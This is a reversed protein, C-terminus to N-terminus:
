CRLLLCRGQLSVQGASQRQFGSARSDSSHGQSDPLILAAGVRERRAQRQLSSAECLTAESFEIEVRVEAPDNEACCEVGPLHWLMVPSVLLLCILWAFVACYSHHKLTMESDIALQRVTASGGAPRQFM